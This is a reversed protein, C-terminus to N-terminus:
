PSSPKKDEKTANSVLLGIGAAGAVAGAVVVGTTLGGAGGVGGAAGAVAPAPPVAPVTFLGGPPVNAVAGNPFSVQASAGQQVM